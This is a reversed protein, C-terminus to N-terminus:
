GGAVWGEKMYGGKILVGINDLQGEYHKEADAARDPDDNECALTYDSRIDVLQDIAAEIKDFYGNVEAVFGKEVSGSENVKNICEYIKKYQETIDELGADIQTKKEIIESDKDAKEFNDFISLIDQVVIVPARFKSYEEIQRRLVETNGLNQGEQAVSPM